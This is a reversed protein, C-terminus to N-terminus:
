SGPQGDEVLQRARCNPCVRYSREVAQFRPNFLGLGRRKNQSRELVLGPHGCLSCPLDVEGVKHRVRTTAV